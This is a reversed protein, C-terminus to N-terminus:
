GGGVRSSLSSCRDNGDEKEQRWRERADERGDEGDTPDVEERGTRV